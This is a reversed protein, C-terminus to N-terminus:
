GVRPLSPSTAPVYCVKLLRNQLSEIDILRGWHRGSDPLAIDLPLSGLLQKLQTKHDLNPLMALCQM